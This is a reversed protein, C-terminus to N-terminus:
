RPDLVREFPVSYDSREVPLKRNRRVSVITGRRSAPQADMASHRQRRRLCRRDRADYVWLGTEDVHERHRRPADHSLAKGRSGALSVRHCRRQHRSHGIHTPRTDDARRLEGSLRSRNRSRCPNSISARRHERHERHEPLIDITATTCIRSCHSRFISRTPIIVRQRHVLM